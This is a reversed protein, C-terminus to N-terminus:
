GEEGTSTLTALDDAFEADYGAPWEWGVVEAYADTLAEVGRLIESGLGHATLDWFLGDADLYLVHQDGSLRCEVLEGGGCLTQMARAALFCNSSPDLDAASLNALVRDAANDTTMTMEDRGQDTTTDMCTDAALLAPGLLQPEPKRSTTNM